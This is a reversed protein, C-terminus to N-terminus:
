DWIFGDIPKIESLVGLDYYLRAIEQFRETSINGLPVGKKYALKKLERGEFILSEISKDQGNYKAKILRATEEIHNFAYAWGQLSAKKFAAVRKPHSKAESESTFLLDGYYNQGYQSPAFSNFAVGKEKLVFPENSVYCAMADTNKNILDDLNYSHKIRVIDFARLGQSALMGMTAAAGLEDPTIMIRRGILDSINEIGTDTRTLLVSPTEQFVAALAVVPLGQYRAALLSSRGTGYTAKGLVVDEVVNSSGFTFPIIEVDLGANQYFGKEKAMYYGAFQFQDLWQLKLSVAELARGQGIM